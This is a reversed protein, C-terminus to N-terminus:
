READRVAALFEGLLAHLATLEVIAQAAARDALVDGDVTYTQDDDVIPGEEEPILEATTLVGCPAYGDRRRFLVDVSAHPPRAWDAIVVRVSVGPTREAAHEIAASPRM